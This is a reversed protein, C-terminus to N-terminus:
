AMGHPGGSCGASSKRGRSKSSHSPGHTWAPTRCELLRLFTPHVDLDALGCDLLSRFLEGIPPPPPLVVVDAREIMDGRRLDRVGGLQDQGALYEREADREVAAARLGAKKAAAEIGDVLHQRGSGVRDRAPLVPVLDAVGVVREVQADLARGMPVR